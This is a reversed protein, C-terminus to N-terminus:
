RFSPEARYHNGQRTGTGNEAGSFATETQQNDANQNRKARKLEISYQLRPIVIKGAVISLTIFPFYQEFIQKVIVYYKGPLADLAENIREALEKIENDELTWHQGDFFAVLEFLSTVGVALLSLMAIKETQDVKKVRRRRERIPSPEPSITEEETRGDDTNRTRTRASNDSRSRGADSRRKRTRATPQEVDYNRSTFNFETTATRSEANGSENSQNANGSSQNASQQFSREDARITGGSITSDRFAPDNAIARFRNAYESNSNGDAPRVNEQGENQTTDSSVSEM